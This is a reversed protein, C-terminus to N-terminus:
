TTLSEEKHRMDHTARTLFPLLWKLHAGRCMLGPGWEVGRAPWWAMHPNVAWSNCLGKACIIDAGIVPIIGTHNPFLSSAQKQYFCQRRLCWCRQVCQEKERSYTTGKGNRRCVGRDKLMLKLPHQGWRPYWEWLVRWTGKSLSHRSKISVFELGAKGVPEHAKPIPGTPWPGWVGMVQCM